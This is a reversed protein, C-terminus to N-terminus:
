DICYPLYPYYIEKNQLYYDFEIPKVKYFNSSDKILLGNKFIFYYDLGYVRLTDFGIKEVYCITDMTFFNVIDNETFSNHKHLLITDVFAKFLELEFNRNMQNHMNLYTEYSNTDKSFNDLFGNSYKVFLLGLVVLLILICNKKNM